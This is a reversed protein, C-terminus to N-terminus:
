MIHVRKQKSIMEGSDGLQLDNNDDATSMM